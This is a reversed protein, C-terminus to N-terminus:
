STTIRDRSADFRWVALPVLAQIRCPFISAGGPPQLHHATCVDASMGIQQAWLWEQGLMVSPVTLAAAQLYSGSAAMIGATVIASMLAM